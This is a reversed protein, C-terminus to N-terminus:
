SIGCEEWLESLYSIVIISAKIEYLCQMRKVLIDEKAEFFFAPKFFNAGTMEQWEKLQSREM